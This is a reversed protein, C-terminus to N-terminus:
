YGILVLSVLLFLLESWQQVAGLADGTQGGLRQRLWFGAAANLLLLPLVAWVLVPRLALLGFVPLLAWIFAAVSLRQAMVQAKGEARAYPLYLLLALANGRSVVAALLMVLVVADAPLATLLVFRGGLSVILALVGFSGIHSDRMVALMRERDPSVGCADALDALGDEHLAGTLLLGALLALGVAVTQSLYLLALAYVGASVGGVIVGTWPWYRVSDRAWAPSYPLGQLPLRTFFQLALLFLRSEHCLHKM